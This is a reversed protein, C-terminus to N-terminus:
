LTFWKKVIHPIQGSCKHATHCTANDQQQFLGSGGPFAMTMFRQVQDAFINLYTDCKCGCSHGSGLNGLLVNGLDDWERWQSTSMGWDMRTANSDWRFPACLCPRGGSTFTFFPVWRVLCGEEVEGLDLELVWTGLQLCKRCNATTMMIPVRIPRFSRLLIYLV